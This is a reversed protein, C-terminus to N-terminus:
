EIRKLYEDRIHNFYRDYLYYKIIDQEEDSFVVDREIYSEYTYEFIDFILRDTFNKEGMEILDKNSFFQLTHQTSEDVIEDLRHNVRRLFKRITSKRLEQYQSETIIYKM